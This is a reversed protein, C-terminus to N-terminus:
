RKLKVDNDIEPGYWIAYLKRMLKRMLELNLTNITDCEYRGVHM